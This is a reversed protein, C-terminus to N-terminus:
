KKLIYKMQRNQYGLTDEARTAKTTINEILENQSEIENGLGLALNKLRNLGLDIEGLNADLQRDIDNSRQAQGTSARRGLDEEDDDFNIGRGALGPHNAASRRSSEQSIQEVTTGLTSSYGSPRSSLGPTSKSAPLGNAPSDTSAKSFINKVGGFFSKMSTLNKQTVRMVANMQDLNSDVNSLKEGQRVMEEATALGVKESEYILGLSVKSSQLTREEIRRREELLQQRKQAYDNGNSRGSSQDGLVYNSSGKHSLFAHDDVEDEDDLFPNKAPKGSM